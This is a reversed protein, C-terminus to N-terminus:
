LSLFNKNNFMNKIDFVLSDKNKCLSSININIFETHSVAIIIFDYQFNYINTYDILDINFKSKVEDKSAYPDYVNIKYDGKVLLKYLDYVKSNRIDPCNEKFTVGLILGTYNHSSKSKKLLNTIRNFIEKPMSNNLKRGSLIIKSKYGFKKAKYTLYFPDVGICHGGVLGPRFPLFNWKTEAADLVKNTDIDMKNFLISLENIFAINIDRQCNEIVKAAEAIKISDARYTGAKIISNYLKDVKLATKHNSGSTIKIIKTLTRKTDGPNIREPSYGCFFDKNFKLNSEQELIPVCDEETCGPYVTSEYIVLDDKSLISGVLKSASLLLSLDPANKKTIPTPVAIIYINSQSINVIKSTLKLKISSSIKRKSIEGTKDFGIKLEDIRQKNHDFGTTIFKKGFEVALPLGVYGLGIIAIKNM